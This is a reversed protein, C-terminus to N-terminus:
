SYTVFVQCIGTILNAVGEVLTHQVNFKNCVANFNIIEM